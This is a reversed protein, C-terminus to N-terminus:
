TAMLHRAVVTRLIESTGAFIRHVRAFAYMRSIPMDDSYGMGGFLQLCEDMARGEAETTYMKAIASEEQSLTGAQLKKLYADVLERAAATEARVTAMKFQSNQFDIIRQGFAKREKIYQLTLHLALESAAVCRASIGMRGIGIGSLAQKLGQGEVGGILNRAPVRVNDFFVESVGSCSKMMLPTAKGITVGKTNRLPVVFVSMRPKGEGNDTRAVAFLVTLIPGNSMWM